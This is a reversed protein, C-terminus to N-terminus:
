EAVLTGGSCTSELSSLDSISTTYGVTSWLGNHVPLIPTPMARYLYPLVCHWRDGAVPVLVNVNLLIYLGSFLFAYNLSTM